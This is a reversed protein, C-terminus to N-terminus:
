GMLLPMTMLPASSIQSNEGNAATLSLFDGCIAQHMSNHLDREVGQQFEKYSALRMLHGISEPSFSTGNMRGPTRDGGFGRSLCHEEYTHNYIIPRLHSFPGDVVCRGKGVTEPGGPDGDGGFGSEADWISSKALDNWDLTWDWYSIATLLCLVCPNEAAHTGPTWRM